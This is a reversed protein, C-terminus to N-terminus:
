YTSSPAIMPGWLRPSLAPGATWKARAKGLPTELRDWPGALEGRGRLGGVMKAQSRPDRWAEDADLCTGVWVQAAKGAM